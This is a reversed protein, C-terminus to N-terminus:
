RQTAPVLIFLQGPFAGREVRLQGTSLLLLRNQALPLGGIDIQGGARCGTLTASCAEYVGHWVSGIGQVNGFVAVVYVGYYVLNGFGGRLWNISEFLVALAAIFALEPLLLFLFPAVLTWLDVAFEEARILQLVLSTLISVGILASLVATNSAWKGVTYIPKSIPTSAIIEGVGTRRDREITGKVLFFGFWPLFEALLKTVSLGIWASNYIPRAAGLDLYLWAPSDQAPLCLYTFAVIALLTILFSYRRVRELFDARALHYLTRWQSM